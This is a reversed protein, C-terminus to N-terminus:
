TKKWRTMLKELINTGDDGETRLFGRDLNIRITAWMEGALTKYADHSGELAAVQRSLPAFGCTEVPPMIITHKAAEQLKIKLVVGRYRDPIPEGRDQLRMLLEAEAQTVEVVPKDSQDM